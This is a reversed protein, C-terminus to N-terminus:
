WKKGLVSCPSPAMRPLTCIKQLDRAFRRRFCHHQIDLMFIAFLSTSSSRWRVSQRCEVQNQPLFPVIAPFKGRMRECGSKPNGQTVLRNVSGATPSVTRKKEEHLKCMNSARCNFLELRGLDLVYESCDM